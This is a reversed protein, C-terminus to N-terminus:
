FDGHIEKALNDVYEKAEKLGEGTIERYLKIAKIKEPIKVLEVVKELDEDSITVKNKDIGLHQLIKNQNKEMSKLRADMDIIFIFMIFIALALITNTM